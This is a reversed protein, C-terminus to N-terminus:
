NLNKQHPLNLQIQHNNLFNHRIQSTQCLLIILTMNMVYIYITYINNINIKIRIEYFNEHQYEVFGIQTHMLNIFKVKRIGERM